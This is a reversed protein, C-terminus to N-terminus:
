DEKGLHRGYRVWSEWRTATKLGAQGVRLLQGWRHAKADAIEGRRLSKGVELLLEELAIGGDVVAALDNEVDRISGYRGM